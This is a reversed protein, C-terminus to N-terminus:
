PNLGLYVEESYEEEIMTATDNEIHDKRQKNLSYVLSLYNNLQDDSISKIKKSVMQEVISNTFYKDSVFNMMLEYLRSYVNIGPNVTIAIYCDKFYKADETKKFYINEVLSTGEVTVLLNKNLLIHQNIDTFGLNYAEQKILSIFTSRNESRSKELISDHLSSQDELNKRVKDLDEISIKTTVSELEDITKAIDSIHYTSTFRKILQNIIVLVTKDFFDGYDQTIMLINEIITSNADELNLDIVSVIVDLAKASIPENGLFSFYVNILEILSAEDYSTRKKKYSQVHLDMLYLIQDYNELQYICKQIFSKAAFSKFRLDFAEKIESKSVSIDETFSIDERKDGLIISNIQGEDKEIESLAEDLSSIGSFASNYADVTTLEDFDIEDLNNSVGISIRRNRSNLNYGLNKIIYYLTINEKIFYNYFHNTSSDSASYSATCWTVKYKKDLHNPGYRELTGNAKSMSWAASGKPTKPKVIIFNENAEIIDFHECSFKSSKKDWLNLIDQLSEKDQETFSKKIDISKVFNNLDELTVDIDEYHKNLADKVNSSNYYPDIKDILTLIIGFDEQPNDEILKYIFHSYKKYKQNWNDRLSVIISDTVDLDIKDVIQRLRLSQVELLLSKFM